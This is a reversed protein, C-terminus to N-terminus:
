IMGAMRQWKELADFFKRDEEIGHEQRHEEIKDWEAEIMRGCGPCIPAPREKAEALTFILIMEALRKRKSSRWKRKWSKQEPNLEDRRAVTWAAQYTWGPM